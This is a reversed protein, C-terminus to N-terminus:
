HSEPMNITINNGDVKYGGIPRTKNNVVDAGIQALAQASPRGDFLAYIWIQSGDKISVIWRTKGSSNTKDTGTAISMADPASMLPLPEGLAAPTIRDALADGGEATVAHWLLLNADAPGVPSEACWTPPADPAATKDLKEPAAGLLSQMMLYSGIEDKSTVLTGSRVPAPTKSCLGLQTGASQEARQTLAAIEALTTSEEQPVWTARYELTWGSIDGVWIGEVTQGGDRTYIANELVTTSAIAAAPARETVDPHIAVLERRAEKLDDDLSEGERRTLYLTIFNHRADIYNCSVDLGSAKYAHVNMRGFAGVRLDCALGSQLHVINDQGDVRWVSKYVPQADPAAPTEGVPGQPEPPTAALAQTGALIGLVL